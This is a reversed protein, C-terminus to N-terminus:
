SSLVGALLIACAATMVPLCEDTTWWVRGVAAVSVVELGIQKEVIIVGLCWHSWVLRIAVLEPQVWGFEYKLAIERSVPRSRMDKSPFVITIVRNMLREGNLTAAAKKALQGSKFRM